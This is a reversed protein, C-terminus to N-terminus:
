LVFFFFFNGCFRYEISSRTCSQNMNEQVVSIPPPSEKPIIGPDRLSTMALCIMSTVYLVSTLIIHLISKTHMVTIWLGTMTGLIIVTGSLPYIDPGLIIRGECLFYNRGPWVRRESM